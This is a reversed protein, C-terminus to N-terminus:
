RQFRDGLSDMLARGGVGSNTDVRQVMRPTRQAPRDDATRKMNMMMPAKRPDRTVGRAAEKAPDHKIGLGEAKKRMAHRVLEAAFEEKAKKTGDDNLPSLETAAELIADLNPTEGAEPLSMLWDAVRKHAPENLPLFSESPIITGTLDRFRSGIEYLINDPSFYPANVIEYFPQKDDPLISIPALAELQQGAEALQSERDAIQRRADALQKELHAIRANEAHKAANPNESM